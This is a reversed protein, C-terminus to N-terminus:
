EPARERWSMLAFWIFLLGAGSLALACSRHLLFLFQQQAPTLLPFMALIVSFITPVTLALALWFFITRLVVHFSSRSPFRNRDAWFLAVVISVLAFGGAAAIHVLLSYGTLAGQQQFVGLLGSMAAAAFCVIGVLNVGVRFDRLWGSGVRVTSAVRLKPRRFVARAILDAVIITGIAALVVEVAHRYM